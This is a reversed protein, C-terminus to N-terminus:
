NEAAYWEAYSSATEHLRLSFLSVGTPLSQALRGAIWPLLNECTPQFPLEVLRHTYPALVSADVAGARVMLAHDLMSLIQESVIQKLIGFDILMGCKPSGVDTSPQGIVTVLLRYSHGHINACLGDYGQLFHAAEFTFEKTLRITPM